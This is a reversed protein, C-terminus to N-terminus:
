VTLQRAVLDEVVDRFHFESVNQSNLTQAINEVFERKTSIDAIKRRERGESILVVGYITVNKFDKTSATGTVVKYFKNM